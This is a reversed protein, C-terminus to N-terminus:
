SGTELISWTHDALLKVKAIFTMTAGKPGWEDPGIFSLRRQGSAMEYLYYHKGVIPKFDYKAAFIEQSVEVRDKISQAQKALLKMQEAIQDIQMQAQEQMTELAQSKIAGYDNPVIAFGGVSHAYEMLGPLDASMMEMKALREESFEQPKSKEDSM